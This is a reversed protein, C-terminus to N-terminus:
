DHVLDHMINSLLRGQVAINPFKTCRLGMQKKDMEGLFFYNQKKIIKGVCTPSSDRTTKPPCNPDNRGSGEKLKIEMRRWSVDRQRATVHKAGYLRLGWKQQRNM